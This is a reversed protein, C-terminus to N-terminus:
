GTTSTRNVFEWVGALDKAGPYKFAIAANVVHQSIDAERAHLRWDPEDRERGPERVNNIGYGEEARKRMVVGIDGAILKGLDGMASVDVRNGDVHLLGGGPKPSGGRSSESQDQEIGALLQTIREPALQFRNERTEREAEAEEEGLIARDDAPVPSSDPDVM